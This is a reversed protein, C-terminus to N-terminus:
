SQLACLESKCPLMTGSSLFLLNIKSETAMIERCANDASSLLSVDVNMFIYEGGPNLVKLETRVRLSSEKSRGTFYIKPLITDKVFHKLSSEGIGATAGVFVAVLGPPACQAIGSNSLRITDLAVM